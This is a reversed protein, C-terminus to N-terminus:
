YIDENLRGEDVLNKIYLLSEEETLQGASQVAKRIAERVAHGMKVPGCVYVYAGQCLWEYFLEAQAGIKDQVYIKHEQNRSFATDLRTLCNTKIWQTIEERYLFDSHSQKEGFILWAPGQSNRFKLDQLFARFPAIGTGAAIMIVPVNKEPLRFQENPIIRIHLREGVSLYRTLYFSCAGYQESHNESYNILRITLHVEGPNTKAGSSISYLRPQMKCLISVLKEPRAECPFDALMDPVDKNKLYSNLKKEDTLLCALASNNNGSLAAYRELVGRNLSTIEVRTELIEDLRSPNGRYNVLMDSPYKLQKLLLQVLAPPNSPVISVSDGPLYSFRPDDVSLVLHYIESISGENLRHRSKVTAEFINAKENQEMPLPAIIKTTASPGKKLVGSLWEAATQHFEVDCDARKYFRTAGLEELRSDIDKGIKCFHEYSSDGLACVSFRLHALNPTGPAFLRSYFRAAEPPPDGEGHTSVIILLLRENALEGFNFKAMNRVKVDQGNQKLYHRAEKAIFASNGSHGGFLITLTEKKRSTERRFLKKLTTDFM